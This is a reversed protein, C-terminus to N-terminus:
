LGNVHTSDLFREAWALVLCAAPTNSQTFSGHSGPLCAPRRNFISTVPYDGYLATRRPKARADQPDGNSSSQVVNSQRQLSAWRQCLPVAISIIKAIVSCRQPLLM